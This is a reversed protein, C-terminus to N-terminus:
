KKKKTERSKKQSAQNTEKCSEKRKGVQCSDYHDVAEVACRRPFWGRMRPQAEEQVKDGYLWYKKWRTVRVREGHELPIRPEDTCPPHTCVGCGQSLPLWKGSYHNVIQYERTRGRKDEKQRLQERTLTYQDAGEVVPWSIGDGLPQCSWNIVQKLNNWRGVDYPWVFRVGSSALRYDAKERIWDEIGTQNRLISRIQFFFLLGVAIVVGIALGLGFLAALLSWLSLVVIPEQGTGYYQYWSRNLGYYLSMSLCVTSLSCGLVASILFASFHGHNFHGVCNNIWPCHHDMKQVCRGCKRCHHARPAKYGACEGCWQLLDEWEEPSGENPKWGLPLYGPGDVMASLFHFMTMGAFFLFSSLFALGGVSGAPPWWMTSCYVTALSVWKIIGIAVLPGWHLVRWLGM